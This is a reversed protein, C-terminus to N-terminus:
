RQISERDTNWRIVIETEKLTNPYLEQGSLRREHKGEHGVPLCCKFPGILDSIVQAKCEGESIM